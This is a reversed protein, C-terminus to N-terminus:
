ILRRLAPSISYVRSGRGLTLSLGLYGQRELDKLLELVFLPPVGTAKAPDDVVSTGTPPDNVLSLIITRRAQAADLVIVVVCHKFGLCYRGLASM